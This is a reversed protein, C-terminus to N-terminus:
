ATERSVAEKEEKTGSFAVPPLARAVAEELIQQVEQLVKLHPKLNAATPPDLVVRDLLAEIEPKAQAVPRVAAVVLELLRAGPKRELQKRLALRDEIDRQLAEKQQRLRAIEKRLEEDTGVEELRAELEQVKRALAEVLIAAREREEKLKKVEDLRLQGVSEGLADWIAKQVETPLRALVAGATVGLAGAEVLAQLEPALENLADYEYVQTRSLGLEQALLEATEGRFNRRNGSDNGGQRGRREGLEEVLLEKKRRVARALEMPTLHRASLNADLLVLEAERDGLGEAVVCPVEEVGLKEAARVRQHGSLIEYKGGGVPRVVVPHIFGVEELSKALEELEQDTMQRFVQNMPHPVLDKLPLIVVAGADREM